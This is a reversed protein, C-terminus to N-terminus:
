TIPIRRSLNSRIDDPLKAVRITLVGLNLTADVNDCDADRPLHLTTYTSKTNDTAVRAEIDLTRIDTQLMVSISEQPFGPVKVNYIYSDGVTQM